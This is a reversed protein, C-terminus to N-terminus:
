TTGVSPATQGPGTGAGTYTSGGAPRLVRLKYAFSGGAAAMKLRWRVIVGDFPAHLMGTALVTNTFTGLGCTASSEPTATLASGVTTAAGAAAPLALAVAAAIAPLGSRSLLVARAYLADRRGRLRGAHAGRAQGGRPEGGHLSPRRRDREDHVHPRPERSLARGGRRGRDGPVGPRLQRPQDRQQRLRGPARRARAAEARAPDLDWEDQLYGAVCARGGAGVAQLSDLLAAAGVLEYLGTVGGPAIERVQAAVAGDDIVVHDAGNADLAARKAEQRTTAIVTQGRDKAITIAAMGVSSSGGHVLLSDGSALQLEELSGWATVFTEPIAGLTAWDLKTEIPIVHTAPVLTYQRYGGDYARGMEGMAAVVTQGANLDGDSRDAVEGVCEIGIVRPFKVNDGSGGSRTILEARNLGFARVRVLVWGPRVAPIERDELTLVEPGGPQRVVIAQM